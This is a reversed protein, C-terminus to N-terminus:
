VQIIRSHNVCYLLWRALCNQAGKYTGPSRSEVAPLRARVSRRLKMKDTEARSNRLIDAGSGGRPGAPAFIDAREARSRAQSKVGISTSVLKSTSM